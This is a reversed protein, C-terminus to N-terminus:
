PGTGRSQLLGLLTPTDMAVSYPKDKGPLGAGKEWLACEQHTPEVVALSEPPIGRAFIRQLTARHHWRRLSVGLCLAPRRQLYGEMQNAVDKPFLDEIDRLGCLYDDETLWPLSAEMGPVSGGYLHVLIMQQSPDLRTEEFSCPVWEGAEFMALSAENPPKDRPAPRVIYVPIEPQADRLAEELIPEHLLSVHVGPRLHPILSDALVRLEPKSTQRYAVMLDSRSKHFEFQQALASTPLGAYAGAEETGSWEGLPVGSLKQQLKQRFAEVFPRQEERADGLILSFPKELLTGLREINPNQIATVVTKQQPARVKQNSLDFIQASAITSRLYVVPSFVAATKYNSDTLLDLRTKQMAWAVDGRQKAGLLTEYFKTSCRAAFGARVPYLHALVADAGARVIFEGASALEGRKAGECCELVILRPTSNSSAKIQQAFTEVSLHESEDTDDQQGLLLFPKGEGRAVGAHGVFHVVEVAGARSLGGPLYRGRAREGVICDVVMVGSDLHPQFAQNILTPATEGQPAVVLLKLAARVERGRAVGSTMPVRRVLCVEPIAGWFGETTSPACLAEWPVDHLSWADHGVSDGLALQILLPASSASVMSSSLKGVEGGLIADYLRHALSMLPDDFWVGAAVAREIGAAFTRLNQVVDAGLRVSAEANASSRAVVSLGSGDHTIAIVLSNPITRAREVPM